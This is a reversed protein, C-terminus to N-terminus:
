DELISELKNTLIIKEIMYNDSNDFEGSMVSEGFKSENEILDIVYDRYYIFDKIHNLLEREVDIQEKSVKTTILQKNYIYSVSPEKVEQAKEKNKDITRSNLITIWKIIAQIDDYSFQGTNKIAVLYNSWSKDYVLERDIKVFTEYIDHYTNLYKSYNISINKKLKEYKEEGHIDRFIEIDDDLSGKCILHETMDSIGQKARKFKAELVERGLTKDYLEQYKDCISTVIYDTESVTYELLNKMMKLDLNEKGKINEIENKLQINLILFAGVVGIVAGILGFYGGLVTSVVSVLEKRDVKGWGFELGCLSCLLVIVLAVFIIASYNLFKKIINKYNKDKGDDFIADVTKNIINFM